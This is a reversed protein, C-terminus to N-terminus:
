TGIYVMQDWLLPMRFRASYANPPLLLDPCVGITNYQWALMGQKKVADKATKALDLVLINLWVVPSERQDVPSVVYLAHQASNTIKNASIGQLWRVQM